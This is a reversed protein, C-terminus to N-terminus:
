EQQQNYKREIKKLYKIVTQMLNISDEIFDGDNRQKNEQCAQIYKDKILKLLEIHKNLFVTRDNSDVIHMRIKILEDTEPDNFELPTFKGAQCEDCLDLALIAEENFDFVAMAHGYIVEQTDTDIYGYIGLEPSQPDPDSQVSKNLENYGVFGMAAWQACLEQFEQYKPHTIVKQVWQTIKENQNM